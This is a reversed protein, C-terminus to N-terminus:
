RSPLELDQPNPFGSLMQAPGQKIQALAKITPKQNRPFGEGPGEIYNTKPYDMMIIMRVLDGCIIGFSHQM